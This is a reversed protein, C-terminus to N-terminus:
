SQQINQDGNSSGTVSTSCILYEHIQINKEDVDWQALEISWGLDGYPFLLVYHLPLYAPNCEDIITLGNGDKLHLLIDRTTTVDGPKELVIVYVEEVAPLNYRRQDSNENFHLSVQVTKDSSAQRDKLIDYAHRYLPIFRSHKLLTDQIISFIERDLDKNRKERISLAHAPDYLFLQSYIADGIQKPMLSGSYHQLEGHISFCPPGSGKAARTDYKCGLCTFANAANFNRIGQRFLRSRYDNGEFLEMIEPPPERLPPLQIKGKHCYTGLEPNKFSSDSLKEDIWHLAGCFPCPVDMKGLYNRRDENVTSRAKRGSKRKNGANTRVNSFQTLVDNNEDELIDDSSYYHDTYEDSSVDPIPVSM